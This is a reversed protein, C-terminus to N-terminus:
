RAILLGIVVRALADLLGWVVVARSDAQPARRSLPLGPLMSGM